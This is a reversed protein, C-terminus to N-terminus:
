RVPEAVRREESNRTSPGRIMLFTGAWAGVISWTGSIENGDHNLWGEYSVSGREESLEDYQKTFSIRSGNRSGVLLAVLRSGKSLGADSTEFTEGTLAGNHDRIEADFQNPPLWYPYHFVGKWM